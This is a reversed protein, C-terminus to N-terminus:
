TMAVHRQVDAYTPLAQGRRAAESTLRPRLRRGTRIMDWASRMPNRAVGWDALARDVTVQVEGGRVRAHGMLGVNEQGDFVEAHSHFSLFAPGDAMEVGAPAEVVFGDTTPSAARTRLPLPWGDADVLTLVPPGLREIVGEARARWDSGPGRKWSGPARGPPAPDSPPAVTGAPARWESPARSLDGSPWWLVRVPTVEIWMRTWYWDMRRLVWSPVSRYADPFREMSQALYRASNAALDADRVTALGQVLVTAPDDVGSGTPFSFSLAVRPDRRAREAKVPYTLGTSVDLTTGDASAYPTVPWTIPAGAATLSAYETTIFRVADDLVAPRETSTRASM